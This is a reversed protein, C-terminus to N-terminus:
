SGFKKNMAQPNIDRPPNMYLVEELDGHLFATKIDLHHVPYKRHATGASFARITSHSVM